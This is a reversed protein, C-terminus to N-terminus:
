NRSALIAKILKKNAMGNPHPDGKLKHEDNYPYVEFLNLYDIDNEKLLSEFSEWHQSHMEDWDSPHVVVTFNENGFQRSYEAKSKKIVQVALQLHEDVIENPHNFEMMRVLASRYMLEYIRAKVPSGERLNGRFVPEGGEVSYTPCFNCWHTYSKYDPINRPIHSWLFIYYASGDPEAVQERLNEHELRSLMHNTGFGNYAYSYGKSRLDAEQYLYPLTEENELGYGFAVSCGFFLAYREDKVTDQSAPIERRQYSDMRYYNYFTTDGDVIGLQMHETGSAPLYGLYATRGEQGAGSDFHGSEILPSGIAIFCFLDVFVIISPILLINWLVVKKKRM